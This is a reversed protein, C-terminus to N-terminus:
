RIKTNLPCSQGYKGVSGHALDDRLVTRKVTRQNLLNLNAQPNNPSVDAANVPHRAGIAFCSRQRYREQSADGWVPEAACDKSYRRM